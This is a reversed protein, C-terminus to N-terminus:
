TCQREIRSYAPIVDNAIMSGAIDCRIAGTYPPQLHLSTPIRRKNGSDFRAVFSPVVVEIAPSHRKHLATLPTVFRSQPTQTVCYRSVFISKRCCVLVVNCEYSMAARCRVRVSLLCWDSAQMGPLQSSSSNVKRAGCIPPARPSSRTRSSPHFIRRASKM